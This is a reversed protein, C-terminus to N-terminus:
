SQKKNLALWLRAVAEEPTSGEGYAEPEEEIGKYAHWEGDGWAGDLAFKSGCAEILQGLLFGGKYGARRLENQWPAFLHEERHHTPCLWRVELPKSYDEHHGQADNAGCVECAGRYILGQRVADRLKQAARGKDSKNYARSTELKQEQNKMYYDHQWLKNKEKRVNPKCPPCYKQRNSNAKFTSPCAACSKVAYYAM